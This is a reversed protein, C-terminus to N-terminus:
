GQLRKLHLQTRSLDSGEAAVRQEHVLEASFLSGSRPAVLRAKFPRASLRPNQRWASSRGRGAEYCSVSLGQQLSWEALPGRWSGALGFSCAKQHEPLARCFRKYGHFGPGPTVSWSRAARYGFQAQM